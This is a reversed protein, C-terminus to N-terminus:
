NLEQVFPRRGILANESFAALLQLSPKRALLKLRM